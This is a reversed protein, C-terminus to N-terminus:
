GKACEPTNRSWLTVTRGDPLPEQGSVVFGTNTAAREMAGEDVVPTIEDVLGGATLL